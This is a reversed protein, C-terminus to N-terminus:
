PNLLEEVADIIDAVDRADPLHWAGDRAIFRAAPLTAALDEGGAFPIVRDGRYHLVLAPARVADIVGTVDADYIAELYGAAVDPPASEGLIRALHMTAAGSTGPRYLGALLETAINPRQRLLDLVPRGVDGFTKPGSAYTGFLALHSVRDPRRAGADARVLRHLM